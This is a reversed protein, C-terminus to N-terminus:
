LFMKESVFQGGDGLQNFTPVTTANTSMTNNIQITHTEHKDPHSQQKRDGRCSDKMAAMLAKERAQIFSRRVDKRKLAASLHAAEVACAEEEEILRILEEYANKAEDNM